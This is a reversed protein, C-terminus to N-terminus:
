KNELQYLRKYIKIFSEALTRVEMASMLHDQAHVFIVNVEQHEGSAEKQILDMQIHHAKVLSEDAAKLLEEAKEFDGHEAAEIAEYSLGKADGGYNIIEFIIAGMEDTM